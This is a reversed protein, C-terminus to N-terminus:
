NVWLLDEAGTCLVMIVPMDPEVMQATKINDKRKYRKSVEVCVFHVMEDSANDIGLNAQRDTCSLLEVQASHKAFEFEIESCVVRLLPLAASYESKLEGSPFLM